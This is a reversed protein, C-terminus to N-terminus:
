LELIDNASNPLNVPFRGVILTHMFLSFIVKNQPNVNGCWVAFNEGRM